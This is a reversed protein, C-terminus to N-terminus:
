KWSAFIIGDVHNKLKRLEEYCLKATMGTNLFDDILLISKHSYSFDKHIQPMEQNLSEHVGHRKKYTRKKFAKVFRVGINEAVWQCLYYSCYNNENRLLSPPPSTIFDYHNLIFPLISNGIEKTIEKSNEEKWKKFESWKVNEKEYVTFCGWFSARQHHIRLKTRDFLILNERETDKFLGFDTEEFFDKELEIVESEPM